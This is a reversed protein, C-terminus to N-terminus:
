EAARSREKERGGGKRENETKRQLENECEGGTAGWNDNKWESM